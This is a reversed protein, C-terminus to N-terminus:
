DITFATGLTRRLSELLGARDKDAVKGGLTVRSGDISLEAAPNAAIVKALESLKNGTWGSSQARSDIQIDTRLAEGFAPSLADIVQKRTAEDAVVGAARVVSGDASRTISLRPSIAAPHQQQAVNETPHTDRPAAGKPEHTAVPACSRIAFLALLGLGILPLVWWLWNSDEPTTVHYPKRRPEAPEHRVVPPPAPQPPYPPQHLPEHRPATEYPPEHRVAPPPPLPERRPATEYTPDYRGLAEAVERRPVTEYQPERRPADFTVERRAGSEVTGGDHRAGVEHTERVLVEGPTNHLRVFHEVEGPVSDPIRGGPTLAGLIHPLLFGSAAAATKESIGFRNAAQHLTDDGLLKEVQDTSLPSKDHNGLIRKSVAELGSQKMRKFFGGIGGSRPDTILSLLYAILGKAKAALNFQPDVASAIDDFLAM